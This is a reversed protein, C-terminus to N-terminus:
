LLFSLTLYLSLVTSVTSVVSYRAWMTAEAPTSELTRFTVLIIHSSPDLSRGVKLIEELQHYNFVERALQTNGAKHHEMKTIVESSYLDVDVKM